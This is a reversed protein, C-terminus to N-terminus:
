VIEGAPEVCELHLGSTHVCREIYVYRTLSRETVAKPQDLCKLTSDYVIRMHLCMRIGEKEASKM